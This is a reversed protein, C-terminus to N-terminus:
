SSKKKRQYVDIAHGIGFWFLIPSGIKILFSVALVAGALFGVLTFGYLALGGFFAFAGWFLWEIGMYIKMPIYAIVTYIGHIAKLQFAELM